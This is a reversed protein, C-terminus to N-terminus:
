YKFIHLLNTRISCFPYVKVSIMITTAMIPITEAMAKGLKKFDLFLDCMFLQMEFIFCISPALACTDNLSGSNVSMVLSKPGEPKKFTVGTQGNVFPEYEIPAFESYGTQGFADASEAKGCTNGGGSSYGRNKIIISLLCVNHNM